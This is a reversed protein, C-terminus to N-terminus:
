HECHNSLPLFGGKNQRSLHPDLVHTFGQGLEGLERLSM